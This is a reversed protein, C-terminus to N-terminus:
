IRDIGGEVAMSRTTIGTSSALEPEVPNNSANKEGSTSAGASRWNWPMWGGTTARKEESGVDEREVNEFDIESKNKRMPSANESGSSAHEVNDPASPAAPAGALSSLSSAEKDLVQLVARLRGRQTELYSIREEKSEIKSLPSVEAEAPSGPSSRSQGMVGAILNYLDNAAPPPASSSSPPVPDKRAAPIYFRALLNQAYTGGSSTSSSSPTTPRLGLLNVKIFEIARKIYQLGAAKARDHASSIFTDIEYEYESLFPHVHNQYILRAGQTQPLVLYLLFIARIWAYFPFWKEVLLVCALVVWYMLWPSLQAPDNGKLAKYSAFVPFLFTAISSLLEALLDFM